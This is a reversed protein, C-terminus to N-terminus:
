TGTVAAASMSILAWAGDAAAVDEEDEDDDEVMIEEVVVVDVMEVAAEVM